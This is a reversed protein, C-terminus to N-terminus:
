TKRHDPLHDQRFASRGGTPPRVAPHAAGLPLKHCGGPTTMPVETM